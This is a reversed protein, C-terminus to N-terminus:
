TAVGTASSSDTNTPTGTASGSETASGATTESGSVTAVGTASSSDTNTPTGTASGSETASGATAEYGSKTTVFTPSSSGANTTPTPSAESSGESGSGSYIVPGSSTVSSSISGASEAGSNTTASSASGSKTASGADSNFGSAFGASKSGTNTAAAATASGSGIDTLVEKSASETITASGASVYDSKTAVLDPDMELAAFGSGSNFGSASGASVSGTNTATGSASGSRTSSGSVSGGSTSGTVTASGPVHVSTTASPICKDMVNSEVDAAAKLSSCTGPKCDTKFVPPSGKMCRYLHAADLGCTTPFVSGCIVGSEPCICAGPPNTSCSDLGPTPNVICGSTCKEGFRPNAGAADCIYVSNHDFNGGFISSICFTGKTVCHDQWPHEKRMRYSPQGRGHKFYRRHGQERHEWLDQESSLGINTKFDEHDESSETRLIDEEDEDNKEDANDEEDNGDEPMDSSLPVIASSLPTKNSPLPLITDRKMMPKRGDKKRTRKDGNNMSEFGTESEGRVPWNSLKCIAKDIVEDGSGLSLEECAPKHKKIHKYFQKYGRKHHHHGRDHNEPEHRLVAIEGKPLDGDSNARQLASSCLVVLATSSLSPIPWRM